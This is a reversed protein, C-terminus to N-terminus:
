YLKVGPIPEGVLSPNIHVNVLGSFKMEAMLNRRVLETWHEKPDKTVSSFYVKMKFFVFAPAM